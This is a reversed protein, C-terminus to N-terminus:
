LTADPGYLALALVATATPIRAFWGLVRWVIHAGPNRWAHTKVEAILTICILGCGVLVGETTNGTGYYVLSNHMWPGIGLAWGAAAAGGNYILFRANRRHAPDAPLLDAAAERISPRPASPRASAKEPLAPWWRSTAVPPAHEATDPEDLPEAPEDYVPEEEAEVPPPAPPTLSPKPLRWNPLRSPGITPPYSPPAPILQQDTM